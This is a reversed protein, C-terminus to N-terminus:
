GKFFIEDEFNRLTSCSLSLCGVVAEVPLILCGDISDMVTTYWSSDLLASQRCDGSLIEVILQLWFTPLGEVVIVLM